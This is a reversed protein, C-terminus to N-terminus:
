CHLMMSQCSGSVRSSSFSRKWQSSSHDMLTPLGRSSQERQQKPEVCASLSLASCPSTFLAGAKQGSSQFLPVETFQFTWSLDCLPLLSFCGQFNKIFDQARGWATCARVGFLMYLSRLVLSHSLGSGLGWIPRPTTCIQSLDLCCESCFSQFHSQRRFWLRCSAPSLGVPGIAQYIFFIM